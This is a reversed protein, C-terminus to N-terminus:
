NLLININPNKVLLCQVANEESVNFEEVIDNVNKVWGELVGKIINFKTLIEKNLKIHINGNLFVKLEMIQIDSGNLKGTILKSKGKEWNQNLDFDSEYGLNKMVILLDSLKNIAFRSLKNSTTKDKKSYNTTFPENWYGLVFIIRPTLKTRQDKLEKEEVFVRQNSKYKETPSNKLLENYLELTQENIKDNAVKIVQSIIYYINSLNFDLDNDIVQNLMISKNKSTLKKEVTCIKNLILQWYKRIVEKNTQEFNSIIEDLSLQFINKLSELSIKSIEVLSHSLSEREKCYEDYLYTAYDKGNLNLVQNNYDQQIKEVTRKEKQQLKSDKFLERISESIPSKSEKLKIKIVDVNVRAAREGDIFDFNGLIEPIIENKIFLANLNEDNKWSEPVVLYIVPNCGISNIIHNIWNKYQSYPPNCFIVDFRKNSINTEFFDCGIFNINNEKYSHSLINSKEIARKQIKFNYKNQDYQYDSDKQEWGHYNFDDLKYGNLFTALKNLTSGNGAGIDLISISESKNSVLFLKNETPIEKFEWNIKGDVFNRVTETKTTKTFISLLDLKILNIIEDTTPYFEYDQENQKLEDILVKLKSM